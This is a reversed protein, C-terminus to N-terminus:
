STTTTSPAPKRIYQKEWTVVDSSDDTFFAKFYCMINYEDRGLSTGNWLYDLALDLTGTSWSTASEPANGSFIVGDYITNGSNYGTPNIHLHIKYQRGYAASNVRLNFNYTQTYPSFSSSIVGLSTLDAPPTVSGHSYGYWESFYHPPTKNLRSNAMNVMYALSKSAPVGLETAIQSLKILGSSPLTM